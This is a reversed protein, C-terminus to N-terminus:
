SGYWGPFWWDESTTRLNYHNKWAEYVCEFLGLDREHYIKQDPASSGIAYTKGHAGGFLNKVTRPSRYYSLRKLDTPKKRKPLLLDVPHTGPAKTPVPAELESKYCLGAFMDKSQPPAHKHKHSFISSYFFTVTLLRLPSRNARCV